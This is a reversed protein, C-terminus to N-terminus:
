LSVHKSLDSSHSEVPRLLGCIESLLDWLEIYDFRDGFVVQRSLGCKKHSIPQEKWLPEVTSCVLDGAIKVLSDDVPRLKM